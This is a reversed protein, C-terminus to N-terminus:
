WWVIPPHEPRLVPAQRVAPRSRNRAILAYGVRALPRVLPFGLMRGAWGLGPLQGLMAAVADSGARVGGSESWVHLEDLLRAAHRPGVIDRAQPSGAPVPHLRSYRDLRLAWAISRTCVPCAGDYFM